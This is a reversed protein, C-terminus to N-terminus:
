EKGELIALEGAVMIGVVGVWTLCFGLFFRRSGARQINLRTGGKQTSASLHEKVM